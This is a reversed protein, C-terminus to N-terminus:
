HLPFKSDAVRNAEIEYPNNEYGKIIQFWIYKVPFKFYGVEKWQVKHHDEHARWWPHKDVYEKSESYFTRQGITIAYTKKSNIRALVKGLWSNYRDNDM